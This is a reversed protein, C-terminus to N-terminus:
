ALSDVQHLRQWLFIDSATISNAQLTVEFIISKNFFRNSDETIINAKKVLIYRDIVQDLICGEGREVGQM